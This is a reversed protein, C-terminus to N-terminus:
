WVFSKLLSSDHYAIKFGPDEQSRTEQKEHEDTTEGHNAGQRTGHAPTLAGLWLARATRLLRDCGTTRRKMEADENPMEKSEVDSANVQWILGCLAM